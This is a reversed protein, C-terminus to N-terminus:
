LQRISIPEVAKVLNNEIYKVTPSVNNIVTVAEKDPSYLKITILHTKQNYYLVLKYNFDLHLIVSELVDGNIQKVEKSVLSVLVTTKPIYSGEYSSCLGIIGPLKNVERTGNEIKDKLEFYKSKAGVYCEELFIEPKEVNDLVDFSYMIEQSFIVVLKKTEEIMTFTVTLNLDTDKIKFLISHEEESEFESVKDFNSEKNFKFGNSTFEYGNLTDMSEIIDKWKKLEM